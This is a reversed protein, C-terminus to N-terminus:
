QSGKQSGKVFELYENIQAEISIRRVDFQLRIDLLSRNNKEFSISSLIESVSAISELHFGIEKLDVDLVRKVSSIVSGIAPAYLPHIPRQIDATWREVIIFACADLTWKQQTDELDFSPANVTFKSGFANTMKLIISEPISDRRRWNSISQKKLGLYKALEQDTKVGVVSKMYEIYTRVNM